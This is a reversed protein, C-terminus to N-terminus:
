DAAFLTCPGSYQNYEKTWAVGVRAICDPPIVYCKAFCAPWSWIFLFAIPCHHNFPPWSLRSYNAFVFRYWGILIFSDLAAMKGRYHELRIQRDFFAARWVDNKKDHTDRNYWLFFHKLFPSPGQCDLFHAADDRRKVVVSIPAIRRLRYVPQGGVRTTTHKVKHYMWINM